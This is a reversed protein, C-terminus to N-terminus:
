HLVRNQKILDYLFQVKNGYDTGPHGNYLRYTSQPNIPRWGLISVITKAPSYTLKMGPQLPFLTMRSNMDKLVPETTGVQRAILYLSDGRAVTVTKVDQKDIVTKPGTEAASYLLYAVGAVINDRPTLNPSAVAGRLNPPVILHMRDRNGSRMMEPWGLDHHNASQMPKSYWLNREAYPGTEVWLMAKILRWDLSVYGPTTRLYNNFDSVINQVDQDYANWSLARGPNAANQAQMLDREIYSVDNVTFSRAPESTPYPPIILENTKQSM